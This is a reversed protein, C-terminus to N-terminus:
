HIQRTRLAFLTIQEFFAALIMKAAKKTPLLKGSLFAGCISTLAKILNTQASMWKAMAM